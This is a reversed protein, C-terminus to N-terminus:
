INTEKKSQLRNIVSKIIPKLIFFLVVAGIAWLLISYLGVLGYLQFFEKPSEKFKAVVLDPRLPVNGVDFFLSVIKMYIPIMIIQLPYVLYNVSQIVIQNYKFLYGCLGALLTTTGLVPFIGILIGAVVAEAIKDPTSGTKLQDLIVTKVKLFM